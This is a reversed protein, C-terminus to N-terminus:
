KKLYASPQKGFETKFNTRFADVSKYGVARAVQTITKYKGTVLLTHATELRLSKIYQAPKMGVFQKLRRRLQRESIAADQALQQVTYNSNDLNAKVCKEVSELWLVDEQSLKSPYREYNKAMDFLPITVWYSSNATPLSASM